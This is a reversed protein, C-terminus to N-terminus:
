DDEMGHGAPHRMRGERHMMMGCCQDNMGGMFGGMKKKWTKQQEPTLISKVAYWHDLGNVKLQFQLDSITKLGKEIAARDPNDALFLSKLDLRETRIKSQVQTQKKELDIRLKQLDTEQAATLSLESKLNKARERMHEM